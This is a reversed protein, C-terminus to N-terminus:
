IPGGDGHNGCMKCRGAMFAHTFAGRFGCVGDKREQEIRRPPFMIAREAGSVTILWAAPFQLLPFSARRSGITSRLPRRTCASPARRPNRRSRTEFEVKSVRRSSSEALLVAM